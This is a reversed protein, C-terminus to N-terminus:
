RRYPLPKVNVLTAASRIDKPIRIKLRKAENLNIELRNRKLEYIGIARQSEGNLSRVVQEGVEEGMDFPSVSMAALIGIKTHFSAIGVTPINLAKRLYKGIQEIPVDVNKSDLVGYPTVLWLVQDFKAIEQISEKWDSWYKSMIVKRLHLKTSKSKTMRIIERKIQDTVIKSTKIESTLLTISRANPNLRELIKLAKGVEYREFVGSISSSTTNNLWEIENENRNIGTFFIKKKPFKSLLPIFRDAAEDDCVVVIEFKPESLKDLLGRITHSRQHEDGRELLDSNYVFKSIEVKKNYKEFSSEIGENIGQYWEGPAYSHLVAIPVGKASSNNAISMFIVIAAIFSRPVLYFERVSTM